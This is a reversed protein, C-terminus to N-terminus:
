NMGCSVCHAKKFLKRYNEAVWKNCYGHLYVREEETAKEEWKELSLNKCWM